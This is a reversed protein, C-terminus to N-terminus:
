LTESVVESLPVISMLEKAKQLIYLSTCDLKVTTTAYDVYHPADGAIVVSVSFFNTAILRQTWTHAYKIDIKIVKWIHKSTGIRVYKDKYHKNMLDLNRRVNAKM